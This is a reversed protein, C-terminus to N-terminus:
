DAKFLLFDKRFWNFEEVSFKGEEHLIEDVRGFLRCKKKYLREMLGKGGGEGFFMYEHLLPFRIKKMISLRLFNLEDVDDDAVFDAFPSGIRFYGMGPFIYGFIKRVEAEDIISFTRECM